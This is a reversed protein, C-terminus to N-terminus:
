RRPRKKRTLDPSPEAAQPRAPQNAEKLRKFLGLSFTVWFVSSFLGFLVANLITGMQDDTPQNGTSRIQIMTAIPWAMSEVGLLLTAWAWVAGVSQGRWWLFGMAGVAFLLSWVPPTGSWLLLAGVALVVGGLGAHLAPTRWMM